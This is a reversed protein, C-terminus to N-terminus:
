LESVCRVLVGNGRDSGGRPYVSTDYFQMNCGTDTDIDGATCSWYYGSDGDGYLVGDSADIYGGAQFFISNAEPKDSTTNAYAGKAVASWYFESKSSNMVSSGNLLAVYEGVTPLRWAQGLYFHCPDGLGASPKNTLTIDGSDVYGVAEWDDYGNYAAPRVRIQNYTAEASWGILSGFKFYLGGQDPDGIKCGNVGDSVLNGKAWGLNGLAVRSNSSPPEPLDGGGHGGNVVWDDISSSNISIDNAVAGFTVTLIHTKGSMLNEPMTVTHPTILDVGNKTTMVRVVLTNRNVPVLMSAFQIKKNGFEGIVGDSDSGTYDAGKLLNARTTVEGQRLTGDAYSYTITTPIADVMVNTVTGWRAQAELASAGSKVQLIVELRALAHKFVMGDIAPKAGRGGNWLGATIVDIMGNPTWSVMNTTTNLSGSPHYAVFYATKDGSTDYYQTQSFEIPVNGAGANRRGSIARINTFDVQALAPNVEDKRLFMIDNLSASSNSGGSIVGAGGGKFSSSLSIEGGRLNDLDRRNCSLSALMALSGLAGILLVKQKM